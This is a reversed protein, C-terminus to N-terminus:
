GSPRIPTKYAAGTYRWIEFLKTVFLTNHKVFTKSVTCSINALDNVYLLFLLLGLISGHPVGYVKKNKNITENQCLSINGIRKRGRVSETVSNDYDKEAM